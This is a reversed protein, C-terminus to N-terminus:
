QCDNTYLFIETGQSVKIVNKPLQNTIVMDMNDTEAEYELGLENLISKAEKLTLGIVKPVEIQMKTQEEKEESKTVELYPLVEGCFKHHM